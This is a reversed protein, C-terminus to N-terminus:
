PWPSITVTGQDVVQISLLHDFLLSMGVLPASEMCHVMVVRDQGDWEVACAHVDVLTVSGDALVMRNIEVVPLALSQVQPRSLTLYETFGTDIVADVDIELQTPGRLRLRLIAERATTVVGTM